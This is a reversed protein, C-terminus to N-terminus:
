AHVHHNGFGFGFPRATQSRRLVSVAPAFANAHPAFSRRAVAAFFRSAALVWLGSTPLRLIRMAGRWVLAGGAQVCGGAAGRFGVGVETAAGALAGAPVGGAPGVRGPRPADRVALGAGDYRGAARVAGAGRRPPRLPGGHLGPQVAAADGTRRVRPVAHAACQPVCSSAHARLLLHTEKWSLSRSKHM